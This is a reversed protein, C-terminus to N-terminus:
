HLDHHVTFFRHKFLLKFLFEAMEDPIGMKPTHHLFHDLEVDPTPTPCFRGAGVRLTTLFGVGGLFRSEAVM